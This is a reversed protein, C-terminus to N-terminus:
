PAGITWAVLPENLITRGAHTVVIRADWAGASVLFDYGNSEFRMRGGAVRGGKIDLSPTTSQQPGGTDVKKAKGADRYDFSQYELRGADATIEIVRKSSFGLLRTHELWRCNWQAAAIRISTFTPTTAAKPDGLAGPNFAHLQGVEKGASDSLPWYVQGAGPDAAGLKYAAMPEGSLPQAIWVRSDALPLRVVTQDAGDLSSCIFWVPNTVLLNEVHTRAYSRSAAYPEGAS